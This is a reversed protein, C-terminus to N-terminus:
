YFLKRKHHHLIIRGLPHFFELSLKLARQYIKPPYKFSWPLIIYYFRMIHYSTIAINCCIWRTMLATISILHLSLQASSPWVLTLLWVLPLSLELKGNAWLPFVLGFLVPGLLPIYRVRTHFSNIEKWLRRKLNNIVLWRKDTIVSDSGLKSNYVKVYLLSAM